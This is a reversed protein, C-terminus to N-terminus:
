ESQESDRRELRRTAALAVGIMRRAPISEFGNTLVEEHARPYASKAHPTFDVFLPVECPLESVVSSEDLIVGGLFRVAVVRKPPCESGVFISFAQQQEVGSAARTPTALFPIKIIEDNAQVTVFQREPCRSAIRVATEVVRTM